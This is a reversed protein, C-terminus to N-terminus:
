MSKLVCREVIVGKKPLMAGGGCGSATEPLQFVM